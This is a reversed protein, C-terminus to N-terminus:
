LTHLALKGEGTKDEGGTPGAKVGDDEQLRKILDAKNGGQALGRESLLKKLEPVKMSAYDAM